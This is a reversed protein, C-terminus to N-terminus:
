LRQRLGWFNRQALPLSVISCKRFISMTAQGVMQKWNAELKRMIKKRLLRLDCSPYAGHGLDFFLYFVTCKEFLRIM